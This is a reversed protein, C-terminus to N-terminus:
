LESNEPATTNSPSEVSFARAREFGRESAFASRVRCAATKGASTAVPPKVRILTRLNEPITMMKLNDPLEFGPLSVRKEIGKRRFDRYRMELKIAGLAEFKHAHNQAQISWGALTSEVELRTPSRQSATKPCAARVSKITAAVPESIVLSTEISEATQGACALERRRCADEESPQSDPENLASLEAETGPHYSAGFVETIQHWADIAGSLRPSFGTQLGAVGLSVPVIAVGLFLFFATGLPAHPSKNARQM